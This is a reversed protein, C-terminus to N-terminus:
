IKAVICQCDGRFKQPLFRLFLDRAPVGVLPFIDHKLIRFNNSVLIDNFEKFNLVNIHSAHYDKFQKRRSEVKKILRYARGEKSFRNFKYFWPKQDLDTTVVLVGGPKLVSKINKIALAPDALHEIVSFMTVIDYQDQPLTYASSISFNLEPFRQTAFRIQSESYDIGSVTAGKKQMRFSIFGVGCGIDLIKKGDIDGLIRLINKVKSNFAGSLYRYEQTLCYEIDYFNQDIEKM